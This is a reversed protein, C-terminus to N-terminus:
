EDTKKTRSKGKGPKEKDPTNEQLEELRKGKERCVRSVEQFMKAIENFDATGVFRVFDYNSTDRGYVVDRENM